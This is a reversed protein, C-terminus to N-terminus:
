AFIKMWIDEIMCSELEARVNGNGNVYEWSNNCETFLSESEHVVGCRAQVWFIILM